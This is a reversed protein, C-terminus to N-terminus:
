LRGTKALVFYVDVAVKMGKVHAAHEIRFPYDRDVEGEMDWVCLSTIARDVSDIADENKLESFLRQIQIRKQEYTIKSDVILLMSDVFRALGERASSLFQEDTVNRADEKVEENETMGGLISKYHRLSIPNTRLDNLFDKVRAQLTEAYSLRRGHVVALQGRLWALIDSDPPMLGLVHQVTRLASSDPGWSISDLKADESLHRALRRVTLCRELAAHYRGDAALARADALLMSTLHSVESHLARVSLRRERWLDLGWTCHPMRSALEVLEIVRLSRGLYIRVEIDPEAGRFVETFKADIAANPKQQLLFAQYYLLAANGPNPPAGDEVWPTIEANRKDYAGLYRRRRAAVLARATAKGLGRPKPAKTETGGCATVVGLALSLLCFVVCKRNPVSQNM